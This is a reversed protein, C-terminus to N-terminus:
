ALDGHRNPHGQHDQRNRCRSRTQLQRHPRHLVLPRPLLHRREHPHHTQPQSRESDRRKRRHSHRHRHRPKGDYTGTYPTIKITATAKAITFSRTVDQAANYQTNGSQHATITGTGAGIIHVKWTGNVQTVTCNGTATFTVPLGSSATATITFDQAGYTKNPLSGFTISQDAKTPSIIRVGIPESITQNGAPDTIRARILRTGAETFSTTLIKDTTPPTFVGNGLDWEVLLSSTPDDPDTSQSADLTVAQGVEVTSNGM